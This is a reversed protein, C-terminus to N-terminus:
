AELQKIIRSIFIESEPYLEIEQKLYPIGEEVKGQKILMYGKEASIGPPITGRKGSQKGIIKDYSKMLKEQAQPSQKKMYQYAQNEYDYWTYLEKSTGCATLLVLMLSFFVTKRIM